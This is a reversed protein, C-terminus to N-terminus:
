IMRSVRDMLGAQRPSEIGGAPPAYAAPERHTAPTALPSTAILPPPVKRAQTGGLSASLPVGGGDLPRALARQLRM